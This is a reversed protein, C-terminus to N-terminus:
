GLLINTEQLFYILCYRYMWEDLVAIFHTQLFLGYSIFDLATEMLNVQKM